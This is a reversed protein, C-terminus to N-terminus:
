IHAGVENVGVISLKLGYKSDNLALNLSTPSFPKLATYIEKESVTVTFPKGDDMSVLGVAAYPIMGADVKREKMEVSTVLMTVKNILM